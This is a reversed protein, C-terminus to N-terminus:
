SKCAEQLAKLLERTTYPKPLFNIAGLSVAEAAVGKASLGSVAIIKVNPNIQRLACITNKGDLCPMMLDLLVARIKDQHKAYVALAEMGDSATLVQYNYKQLIVQAIERVTAEDDVVLILDGGGCPLEVESETKIETTEAAPLYVKFESGKGVQSYVRIFGGHNKVIGRVTSLGLGTGKGEKTTFFPEFIRELIEPEIGKGTDSVSLVVYNGIKADLNVSVYNSDIYINRASITLIGGDPMADRANVCLNMLIQHLQTPDGYIPLIESPIDTTFEISKPFTERVIVKIEEILHKIQVLTQQGELGKAFSLVQKILDAGRLTNNEIMEILQRRKEAPLEFELLKVAGLIPTLINNLDHAIGSALTGISEMRQARLFQAELQKKETIDTNVALISKPKGTRDRVLNWRSSVIVEKGDKTVQCLEGEWFGKELVIKDAEQWNKNNINIIKNSELLEDFIKGIAESGNWGYLKEAGKNWFLIRNELDRVFIADTAIDLLAAQERIQEQAIKRESIDHITGVIEEVEGAPNYILKMQDCIWRYSGDKHRFRYEILNHGQKMLRSIEEGVYLADDPHVLELWFSSNELLEEPKYGLRETINDSIFTLTYDQNPQCSYIVVPSSSLLHQLRAQTSRLAAETRELQQIQRQLETERLVRETVDEIVTITGVVQENETLPVIRASQLMQSSEGSGSPPMPLLYHHLRQSLIAVQGGLAQYYFRDLRREILEPYVDFLERGITQRASLGSHIELWRNWSIIKLNADTAVIGRDALDNLWHLLAQNFQIEANGMEKKPNKEEDIKKFEKKNKWQAPTKHRWM